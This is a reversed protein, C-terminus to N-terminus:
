GQNLYATAWTLHVKRIGPMAGKREQRTRVGIIGDGFDTAVMSSDMDGSSSGPGEESSVTSVSAHKPMYGSPRAKSSM